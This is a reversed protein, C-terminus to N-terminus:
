DRKKFLTDMIRGGHYRWVVKEVLKDLQLQEESILIYQTLMM